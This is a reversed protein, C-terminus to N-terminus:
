TNCLSIPRFDKPYQPEKAKPILTIITSNWGKINGNGNLIHIVAETIDYGLFPWPKQFFFATFGDPGPAKSPHMDFVAKRVEASTFPALLLDNTVDSVSPEVFALVEELDLLSPNSTLFLSNFYNLLIGAM